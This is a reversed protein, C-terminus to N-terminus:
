LQCRPSKGWSFLPRSTLSSSEEMKCQLYSHKASTSLRLEEKVNIKIKRYIVTVNRDTRSGLSLQAKNKKTNTM